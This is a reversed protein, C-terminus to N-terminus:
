NCKYMGNKNGHGQGHVL